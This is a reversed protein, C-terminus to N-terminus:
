LVVSFLSESDALAEVGAKDLVPLEAQHPAPFLMAAAGTRPVPWHGWADAAGVAVGGVGPRGESLFPLGKWPWM